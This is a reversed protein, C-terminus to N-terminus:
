RFRMRTGPSFTGKRQGSSRLVELAGLEEEAWKLTRKKLHSDKFPSLLTVRQAEEITFWGTGFQARLENQLPTTDVDEDATFLVEQGSQTVAVYRRGERPDVSWMANKMANLGTDHGTAFVLRNDRGRATRMEFSRVHTVNGQSRLQEEFLRILFDNRERGELAVADRWDPTGFLADLGHAQDDKGLFRCIDTLPLFFLAESRPFDLLQGTLSMTAQTYGFPDIFAFTPVLIKGRDVIDEVLGGFTDEFEGCEVNVAVNEPLALQALELKLREVRREDHEIFFLIFTVKALADFSAHNVIADLMILPSGPEGGEYRGPGAFGDVLLLRPEDEWKLAAYGMIPIWADLYARLVDHKAATHDDRPWLTKKQKTSM